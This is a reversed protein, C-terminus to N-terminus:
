IDCAAVADDLLRGVHERDADGDFDVSDDERQFPRLAQVSHKLSLWPEVTALAPVQATGTGLGPGTPVTSTM